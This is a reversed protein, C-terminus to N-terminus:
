THVLFVSGCPPEILPPRCDQIGGARESIVHCQNLGCGCCLKHQSSCVFSRVSRVLSCNMISPPPPLMSPHSGSFNHLHNPATTNEIIKEIIKLSLLILFCFCAYYQDFSHFFMYLYSINRSSHINLINLTLYMAWSEYESNAVKTLSLIQSSKSNAGRLTKSIQSSKSNPWFFGYQSNSVCRSIPADLYTDDSAEDYDYFTSHLLVVYNV